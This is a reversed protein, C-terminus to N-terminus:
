ASHQPHGHKGLHCCVMEPVQWVSVPFGRLRDIHFKARNIVDTLKGSKGFIASVLQGPPRKVSPHFLYEFVKKVIDYAKVKYRVKGLRVKGKEQSGRCVLRSLRNARVFSLVLNGAL